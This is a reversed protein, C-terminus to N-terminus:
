EQMTLMKKLIEQLFIKNEKRSLSEMGIKEFFDFNGTYYYTNNITSYEISAGYDKLENLLNFLQRRKIHFREAFEDPRGTAEQRILKHMRYLREIDM